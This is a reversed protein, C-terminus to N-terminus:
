PASVTPWLWCLATPSSTIVAGTTPLVGSRRKEGQVAIVDAPLADCYFIREVPRGACRQCGGLAAKILGM